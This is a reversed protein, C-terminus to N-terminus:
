RIDRPFTSGADGPFTSGADGPFITGTDGPFTQMDGPFPPGADGPTPVCFRDGHRLHAPAAEEAVVIMRGNHVVCVKDPPVRPSADDGTPKCFNDGHRLHAPVAEDDVFLPRGQHVVCVTEVDIRWARLAMAGVAVSALCLMVLLLATGLRKIVAM